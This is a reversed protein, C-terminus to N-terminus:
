IGSVTAAAIVRDYFEKVSLPTTIDLVPRPNSIIGGVSPPDFDCGGASNRLVDVYCPLKSTLPLLLEWKATEHVTGIECKINIETGELFFVRQRTGDVIQLIFKSGIAQASVWPLAAWPWIRAVYAWGGDGSIDFRPRSTHIWGDVSAGPVTFSPGFLVSFDANGEPTLQSLDVRAMQKMRLRRYPELPLRLPKGDLSASSFETFVFNGPPSEKAVGTVNSYLRGGLRASECGLPVGACLLSTFLHWRTM